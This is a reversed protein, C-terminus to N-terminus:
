NVTGAKRSGMLAELREMRVALSDILAHLGTCHEHLTAIASDMQVIAARTADDQGKLKAPLDVNFADRLAAFNEKVIVNNTTL